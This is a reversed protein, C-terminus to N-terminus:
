VGTGRPVPWVLQRGGGEGSPLKANPPKVYQPSAAAEKTILACRNQLAGVRTRYEHRYTPSLASFGTQGVQNPRCQFSAGM